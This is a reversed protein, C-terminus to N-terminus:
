DIPKAPLNAAVRQSARKAIGNHILRADHATFQLPQWSMQERDGVSWNAKMIGTESHRAIGQLIHAIEHALVHGLIDGEYSRTRARVREYFIEVTRGEYPLAYAYAGLAINDPAKAVIRVQVDADPAGACRSWVIRVGIKKYIEEAVYKARFASQPIPGPHSL